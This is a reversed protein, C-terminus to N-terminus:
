KISRMQLTDGIGPLLKKSRHEFQGIASDAGHERLFQLLSDRMKNENKSKMAEAKLYDIIYIIYQDTSDVWAHKYDAGKNILYLASGYEHFRIARYLANSGEFNKYNVDAGANVLLQVSTDNMALAYELASTPKFESAPNPNVHYSLLLRLYLTNSHMAAASLSSGEHPTVDNPNAGNKLLVRASYYRDNAICWELLTFGENGESLYNVLGPNAKCLEDLKVTDQEYMCKAIEWVPSGKYVEIDDGKLKNLVSFSSYEYRKYKEPEKDERPLMKYKCSFIFVSALYFLFLKVFNYEKSM